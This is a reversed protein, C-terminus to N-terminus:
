TVANKAKAPSNGRFGLGAATVRRWYGIRILAVSLGAFSWYVYPVFDISSTTAITVLIGLLTAISARAFDRIFIDNLLRRLGILITAFFLLFLSVGVLGSKLAVQLYSNVLDIIGEGQIISLMEPTSLYNTSGLWPNRQVVELSADFLRQRYTVNQEDVSGVFPLFKIITNGAPTLLLPVLITSTIVVFKGLNAVPKPGTGLYAVVLVMTGIWPGRSLAAILGASLMVLALGVFKRAPNIWQWFPLACGITVMFVYGLTIGGETSGAARLLGERRLYTIAEGWNSAVGSYLHWGKAVELMSVLSLPLVAVVFGLLAKQFDLVNRVTRSFAFYPILIDLAHTVAVRMVNTIDSNRYELAILLLVYSVVLLDPAVYARRQRDVSGATAFLMPLLLALALVRANTLGLLQNVVGFGGVTVNVLPVAFLLVYFLGVTAAFRAYVCIMAVILAFVFFNSCLFAAATIAFWANRWVVFERHPMFPCTVQGGVYFAPVALALLVLLSKANAFM